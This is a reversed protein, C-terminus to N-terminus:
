LSHVILEHSIAGLESKDGLYDAFLSRLCKSSQITHLMAFGTREKKGSHQSLKEVLPQNFDAKVDVHVNCLDVKYAWSESM